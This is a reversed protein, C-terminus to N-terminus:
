QLEKRKEKSIDKCKFTLTNNNKAVLEELNVLKIIEFVKKDTISNDFLTHKEKYKGEFHKNRTSCLLNARM